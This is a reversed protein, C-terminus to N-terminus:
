DLLALHKGEGVRKSGENMERFFDLPQLTSKFTTFNNLHRKLTRVRQRFIRAVSRQLM